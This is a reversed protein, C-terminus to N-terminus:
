SVALAISMLLAVPLEVPTALLLRKTTKNATTIQNQSDAECCSFMNCSSEATVSSPSILELRM